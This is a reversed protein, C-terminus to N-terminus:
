GQVSLRTCEIRYTEISGANQDPLSPTAAFCTRYAHYLKLLRKLTLTTCAAAERQLTRPPIGALSCWRQVTRPNEAFLLQIARRFRLAPVRSVLRSLIGKVQLWALLRRSETVRCVSLLSWPGPDAPEREVGLYTWVSPEVPGSRRTRSLIVMPLWYHCENVLLIAKAGFRAGSDVLLVGVQGYRLHQRARILSHAIVLRFAPCPAVLRAVARITVPDESCLLLTITDRLGDVQLTEPDTGM